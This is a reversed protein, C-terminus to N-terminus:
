FAPKRALTEEKSTIHVINVDVVNRLHDVMVQTSWIRGSTLEGLFQHVLGPQSSKLQDVFIGTGPKKDTNNLISGFNIGKPTWMCCLFTGFM